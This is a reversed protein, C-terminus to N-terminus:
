TFDFSFLDTQETGGWNELPILRLALIDERQIAIHYSRRVNRTEELLTVTGAPTDAELRFARCLTLPVYARPSDLRINARMSHTQECFDGPLTRRDLDSNFTIHVAKIPSPAPFRYSLPKKNPASCGCPIRGYLSNPRDRGDKLFEQGPIPQGAENTVPTARCLDGVPRLRAPLFCDDALLTSQLEEM